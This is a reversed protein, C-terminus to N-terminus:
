WVDEAFQQAAQTRGHSKWLYTALNDARINGPTCWHGGTAQVHRLPHSALCWRNTKLYSMGLPLSGLQTHSHARRMELFTSGDRVSHSSKIWEEEEGFTRIRCLCVLSDSRTRVSVRPDNILAWKEIMSDLAGFHDWRIQGLIMSHGRVGIWGSISWMASALSARVVARNHRLVLKRQIWSAECSMALWLAMFPWNVQYGSYVVKVNGDYLQTFILGCAWM